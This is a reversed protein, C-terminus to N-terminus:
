EKISTDHYIKRVTVKKQRFDKAFDSLAQWWIEGYRDVIVYKMSEIIQPMGLEKKHKEDSSICDVDAFTFTDFEDMFALTKDQPRIDIPFTTCINFKKKVWDMGHEVYYKHTACLGDKTLFICHNSPPFEIENEEEYDEGNEEEDDEDEGDEDDEEEGDEDDDDGGNEEEDDEDDYIWEEPSCRTKYLDEEKDYDDPVFIQDKTKKLLNIADKQLFSKIEPLIKQVEKIEKPTVYCGTYCCFQSCYAEKGDQSIIKPICDYHYDMLRLEVDITQGDSSEIIVWDQSDSPKATYKDTSIIAM